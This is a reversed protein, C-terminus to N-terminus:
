KRFASKFRSYIVLLANQILLDRIDVNKRILTKAKATTTANCTARWRTQIRARILQDNIQARHRSPNSLLISAAIERDAELVL